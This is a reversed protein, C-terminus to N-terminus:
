GAPKLHLERRQYCPKYDVVRVGNREVVEVPALSALIKRVHPTVEVGGEVAKVIAAVPLLVHKNADDSM